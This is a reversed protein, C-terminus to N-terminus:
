EECYTMGSFEATCDVAYVGVMAGTFRKGIKVGEDALYTVNELTAAPEDNVYLTRTLGDAQVSLRLLEGEEATLETEYLRFEEGAQETVRIAGDKVGLTLFSNEDYYCTLGADGSAPVTMEASFTFRFATQRQLLISRCRTDTMPHESGQLTVCGDQWSIQGEQPPRPTVWDTKAEPIPAAPLPMVNQTSVGRGQNLLPWGDPTWTFPDLATERGLMTWQGDLARGCLYVFYWRGDPTSVPKAHGCRQILAREDWQRIVPNYPCPEYVGHLTRSRAVTERHGMGTGGEALFLYYWGDKKLIHPGEPARKNSGYYLLTTESLRKTATEDIEFIRAGRNLLMYHRGDDDHFISPDIGDEEFFVPESYPGEPREATVVMQRRRVAGTDNLRLTACIYWRGNCYSIDPAWYGRGGELGEVHAWEPNTIAHGIVEWHVLDRSHSIPICPFFIFTSNVMYYDEGVRVISPDPFFGRRIPNRYLQDYPAGVVSAFYAELAKHGMRHAIDFPTELGNDGRLVDMGGREVLYRCKEVDGSAAAHHLHDRGQSDVNILNMRLGLEVLYKVMNLDGCRMGLYSLAYGEEGVYDLLPPNLPLERRLTELDNRLIVERLQEGNM